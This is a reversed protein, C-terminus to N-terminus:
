TGSQYGVTFDEWEPEYDLPQPSQTQTSSNGLAVGISGDQKRIVYQSADSVTDVANLILTQDFESQSILSTTFGFFFVLSFLHRVTMVNLNSDFKNAFGTVDLYHLHVDTFLGKNKPM